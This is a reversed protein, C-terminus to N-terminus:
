IQLMENLSTSKEKVIEMKHWKKKVFSLEGLGQFKSTIDYSM